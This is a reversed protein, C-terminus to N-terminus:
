AFRETYLKGLQHAIYWLGSGKVNMCRNKNWGAYYRDCCAELTDFLWTGPTLTMHMPQNGDQLCSGSHNVWDPYFLGGNAGGNASDVEVSAGVAGWVSLCSAIDAAFSGSDVLNTSLIALFEDSSLSSEIPTVIAAVLSETTASDRPSNCSAYECTFMETIQFDLQYGSTQLSRSSSRLGRRSTVTSGCVNTLEAECDAGGSCGTVKNITDLAAQGYATVQEANLSCIDASVSISGKSTIIQIVVSPQMSPLLSPSIKLSINFAVSSMARHSYVASCLLSM